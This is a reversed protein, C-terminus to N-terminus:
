KSKSLLDRSTSKMEVVASGDANERIISAAAKSADIATQLISDLVTDDLNSATGPRTMM